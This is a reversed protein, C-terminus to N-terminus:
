HSQSGFGVKGSDITNFTTREIEQYNDITRSDPPGGASTKRM